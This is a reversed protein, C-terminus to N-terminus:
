LGFQADFLDEDLRLPSARRYSNWPHSHLLEANDGASGLVVPLASALLLTETRLWPLARAAHTLSCHVGALLMASHLSGSAEMQAQGSDLRGATDALLAALEQADAALTRAARQLAVLNYASQTEDM